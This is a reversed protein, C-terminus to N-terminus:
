FRPDAHLNGFNSSVALFALRNSHAQRAVELCTFAEDNEALLAQLLACHYASLYYSPQLEKELAILAERTEQMKGTLADVIGAFGKARIQDKSDGFGLELARLAEHRM